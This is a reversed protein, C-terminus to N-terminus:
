AVVATKDAIIPAAPLTACTATNRAPM